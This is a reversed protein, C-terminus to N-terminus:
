GPARASASRCDAHRGASSTRSSAAATGVSTVTGASVSTGHSSARLRDFGARVDQRATVARGSPTARRRSPRGMVSDHCLPDQGCWLDEGLLLAQHAPGLPSQGSAAVILQRVPATRGAAHLPRQPPPSGLQHQDYAGGAGALGGCEARGDLLQPGLVPPTRRAGDAAAASTRAWSAPKAESVRSLSRTSCRRSRGGSWRKSRGAPAVTTTSSAAVTGVGWRASSATRRRDGPHRRARTPSGGCNEATPREPM